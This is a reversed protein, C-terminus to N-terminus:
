RLGRLIATLDIAGQASGNRWRAAPLTGIGLERIAAQQRAFGQPADTADFSEPQKLFESLKGDRFAKLLRPDDPAYVYISIEQGLSSRLAEAASMLARSESQKPDVFLLVEYAATQKGLHAADLRPLNHAFRSWRLQAPASEREIEVERAALRTDGAGHLLFAALLAVPAFAFASRAGARMAPMSIGGLVAMLFLAIGHALLLLTSVSTAKAVMLDNLLVYASLGTVPFALVGAWAVWGSRRPEDATTAFGLLAAMWVYLGALAPFVPLGFPMMDAGYISLSKFCDLHANLRCHHFRIAEDAPLYVYWCQFLALALGTTALGARIQLGARIM